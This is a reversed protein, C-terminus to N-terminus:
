RVPSATSDEGAAVDGMATAGPPPSNRDHRVPTNLAKKEGRSLWWLLLFLPGLSLAFFAPGGRHHIISDIMHPGVHVCLLGITLIRFGNRVIGLPIVFAVLALRRVPSNLLLNAALIGTIFLVWSSRIGSCEQAVQMTIGPLHFVVGDRLFPIGSLRFLVDAAEASALKAGTELWEVLRDPLPITFLLFAFPFRVAAMWRSGLFFFVGAALFCIMSLVTLALSDNLSLGGASSAFIWRFGVAASGAGLAFLAWGPSSSYETPLQKRRLYILYGVIIPILLVHSHLETHAAHNALALLPKAFTCLLLAVYASFLRVRATKGSGTDGPPRSAPVSTQEAADAAM